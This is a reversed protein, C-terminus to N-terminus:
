WRGTWWRAVDQWTVLVFVLVILALGAFQVINMIRVPTPKRRIKEIILFVAMGGDVVPLPLFNIVALTVSIFAMFYVFDILPRERGVQIALGGIGVPGVMMKPSVTNRVLARLSAYTKLTFDWTEEAGWVVASVPNRKVLKFELIRFPVVPFIEVTYDAPDFIAEDLKGLAAARQQAGRRYALTVEQGSLEKLANFVDIWSAVARGNVEEIVDDPALGAKRAPSGDRVGAVVAHMLDLGPVIGMQPVENRSVPTVKMTETQGGRLVVIQTERGVVNKNIETLREFTPTGHDGYRIIVDGPRLGGTQAPSGKSVTLVEVRPIMGLIDLMAKSFVDDRPIEKVKGDPLEIKVTIGDDPDSGYGTAYGRVRAGDKMWHVSSKTRLTPQVRIDIVEPPLTEGSPSERPREITVTVERGDLTKEIPAIEWHREVRRGDIAVLRDGGSFPSDSVADRPEDFVTDLPTGVGFLLMQGGRDKKVGLTGTGIWERGADDRRKVVIEFTKDEHSALVAEMKLDSFRDVEDGDLELIRDGPKLGPGFEPQPMPATAPPTPSTAPRWTFEVKSAPYGPLVSGVFPQTFNKGVIGVVIFLIAAFVLNMVVGASVVVMRVGVSKAPFSRPDLQDGDKLPAFDEQGLMKIYGGVPLAKLCYDTEGRVIGFLRPGFGIAFREVKIGAWRAALFHGLEHFFIVMGLGFILLLIPSIWEGWMGMLNLALVDM